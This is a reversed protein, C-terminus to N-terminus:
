SIEPRRESLGPQRLLELLAEIERAHTRFSLICARVTLRPGEPTPLRTTSLFVQGSENIHDLLATTRRDTEEQTEGERPPRRFTVTSLQPAGCVELDAGEEQLRRAGKWLMEALVLKESLADRFQKAGHLMLPLWIRLGRFDRSLEPGYETPSPIRQDDGHKFDELYEASERHAERLHRGERVLLCGTGYPLFMGKHPDFVISDAREIGALRRKGEHSLVFAGGYAGDVHLWLDHNSCVDSLENLPDIAGTNTTGASALVLFPLRGKARDERVMATLAVPDMRMEADVPVTRVGSRPIGALTVSREVSHHVQSSTYVTVTRLDTAESLKAARATVVANFNAMSGGSTLLGRAATGYGFEAALWSLVDAELRCFLPAASALGTFRNVTDSFLDAFASAVLGGGPVYALYGAGSTPLSAEIGQRLVDQIKALGGDIPDDSIPLQLARAREFSRAEGLGGTRQADLMSLHEDVLQLIARSLDGREAHSLDLQPPQM